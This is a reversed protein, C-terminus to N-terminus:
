KGGENSTLKVNSIIYSVNNEFWEKTNIKMRFESKIQVSYVVKRYLWWIPLFIIWLCTILCFLQIWKSNIFNYLTSTSQVKVLNNRLPYSIRINNYYNQQRIITTIM